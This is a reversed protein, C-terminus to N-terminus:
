NTSENNPASSTGPVSQKQKKAAEEMLQRIEENEAMEIVTKKWVKDIVTVDAGHELLLRVVEM